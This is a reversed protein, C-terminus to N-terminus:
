LYIFKAATGVPNGAKILRVSPQSQHIGETILFSGDAYVKEVFAVHGAVPDSTWTYITNGEQWSFTRDADWVVLSNARPKNKLRDRYNSNAIKGSWTDANGILVTAIGHNNKILGREIARGYVFEVCEFPHAGGLIQENWAILQNGSAQYYARELKIGLTAISPLSDAHPVTDASARIKRQPSKAINTSSGSLSPISNVASAIPTSFVNLLGLSTALLLLQHSKNLM